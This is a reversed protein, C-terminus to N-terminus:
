DRGGSNRLKTTITLGFTSSKATIKEGFNAICSTQYRYEAINQTLKQVVSLLEHMFHSTKSASPSILSSSVSVPQLRVVAYIVATIQTSFQYGFHFWGGKIDWSSLVIFHLMSYNSRRLSTLVLSFLRVKEFDPPPSKGRCLNSLAWM